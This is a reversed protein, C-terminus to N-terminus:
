AKSTSIAPGMKCLLFSPLGGTESDLPRARWQPWAVYIGIESPRRSDKIAHVSNSSRPRPAPLLKFNNRWVKGCKPEPCTQSIRCSDELWPIVPWYVEVDITPAPNEHSGKLSKRGGLQMPLLNFRATEWLCQSQVMSQKSVSLFFAAWICLNRDCFCGPFIIVVPYLKTYSLLLTIEM